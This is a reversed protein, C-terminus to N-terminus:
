GHGLDGALEDFMARGLATLTILRPYEGPPSGFEIIEREALWRIIRCVGMTTVIGPMRKALLSASTMCWGERGGQSGILYLVACQKSTLTGFGGVPRRGHGEAIQEARVEGLAHEAYGDRLAKMLIAKALVQPAEGRALAIRRYEDALQGSLSIYVPPVSRPPSVRVAKLKEVIDPKVPANM